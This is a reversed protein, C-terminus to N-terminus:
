EKYGKMRMEHRQIPTGNRYMYNQLLRHLITLIIYLSIWITFPLTVKWWSWPLFGCVKALIFGCGLIVCIIPIPKM